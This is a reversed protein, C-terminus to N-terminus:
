GSRTFGFKWFIHKIVNIDGWKCNCSTNTPLQRTKFVNIKYTIKPSDEQTKFANFTPLTNLFATFRGIKTSKLVERSPIKQSLETLAALLNEKIQVPLELMSKCRLIDEIVVVRQFVYMWILVDSLRM